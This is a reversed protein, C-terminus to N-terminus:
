LKFLFKKKELIFYLFMGMLYCSIIEGTLVSIFHIIYAEKLGYVYILVFPVIIANSIVNPIPSLWKSRNRLAYSVIAGLLTALSGFIIDWKACGTLLNSVICGVFLGMIASPTFFPLIALAESLRVQIAGSAMGFLHSVYTLLVYLAAIMASLTLSKIKKSKM